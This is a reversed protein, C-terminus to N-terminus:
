DYAGEGLLTRPDGLSIFSEWIDRPSRGTSDRDVLAQYKNYYKLAATHADKPTLPEEVDDLEVSKLVVGVHPGGKIQLEQLLRGVDVLRIPKNIKENELQNAKELLWARWQAIDPIDEKKKPERSDGNRGRQDAEVLLALMHLNTSGGDRYLPDKKDGDGNQLRNSLRRIAKTMNKGQRTELEWFDTPKLHEAVLPLVQRRIQRPLKDLSFKSMFDRSIPVGAPEHGHAKWFGDIKETTTAKGFDHCLSAIVLVARLEKNKNSILKALEQHYIQDFAGSKTNQKAKEVATKELEVMQSRSILNGAAIERDAIEAAADVVQLTHELVNGEPHWTEEQEWKELDAIEPFYRELYGIDKLFELGVSPKKGKEFLKMFEESVRNVTVGEQSDKQEQSLKVKTNRNDIIDLDGREVMKRCLEITKTSVRMNFRAAFQMIRLVRLPDEQFSEEDTVEIVGNRISEIGGVPDYLTETLPDYALTNMTIDRRKGAEAITMSPDGEAKIGTHGKGVKSDRRPVSADIPEELTDVYIKMVEFKDGTTSIGSFNTELVLKITQKDLGFIELDFDKPPAGYEPRLKSLVADRVCGGQLVALGGLKKVEKCIFLIEDPVELKYEGEIKQIGEEYRPNLRSVTEGYEHTHVYLRPPAVEDINFDKEIPNDLALTEISM